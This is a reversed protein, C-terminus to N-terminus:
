RHGDPFLTLLIIRAVMHKSTIPVHVTKKKQSVIYVENTDVSFGAGEKGVDNAVVADAVGKELLDKAKKILIEEPQRYVAKFAVVFMDPNWSKLKTLIKERPRMILTFSSGSGIKGIEKKEPSFDSVAATHIISDCSSAHKKILLELEDATEFLEEKIPIAPVVSTRARFLLVDAGMRSAEEALAVGMKGSARNTVVRVADVPESTGGATIIIKKGKLLSKNKLIFFIEKEIVGIDPLRGAGETGCALPGSDPPLIHVGRGTLTEINKKVVPANWMVTNMSPCLLIPAPSALLATTLFDDAIGAAIKGLINATAPAIVFIDAKKALDVHDVKKTKIIEKYDLGGEVIEVRVPNGSAEAFQKADFMRAANRTMIVYVSCGSAKLRKVLDLMKYGAIGSSVGLLITNSM